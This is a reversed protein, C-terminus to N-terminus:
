NELLKTEIMDILSHIIKIHVEQIRDAYKNQPTKIYHDVYDAYDIQLYGHADSTLIIVIMGKNKAALCAQIINESNGSTSIGFFVDGTNGLAEVYRSFVKDYGFDNSVCSIHSPDSISIAPIPIRNNRWRGTLEEAFHMADCMSGGNGATIIKKGNKLSNIISSAAEAVLELYHDNETFKQLFDSSQQLHEKLIEKLNM